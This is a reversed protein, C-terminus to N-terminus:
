PLASSIALGSYGNFILRFKMGATWNTCRVLFYSIGKPIKVTGTVPTFGSQVNTVNSLVPTTNVTGNMWVKGLDDVDLEMVTASGYQDVPSFVYAAAYTTQFQCSANYNKPAMMQFVGASDPVKTWTTFTQATGTDSANAGTIVSYTTGSVTESKNPALDGAEPSADAMLQSFAREGGLYDTAMVNPAKSTDTGDGIAVSDVTYSPSAGQVVGYPGAILWDSVDAVGSSLAIFGDPQQLQGTLAGNSDVAPPTLLPFAGCTFRGAQAANKTYICSGDLRSFIAGGSHRGMDAAVTLLDSSDCTCILASPKSVLDQRTNTLYYNFGFSSKPNASEPCTYVASSLTLDVQWNTSPFRGEHDHAYIAVALAIQRQNNLCTTRQAAKRASGFVPFLIAALISIIVMVTLLEVLTFGASRRIHQSEM